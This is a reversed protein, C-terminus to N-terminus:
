KCISFGQKNAWKKTLEWAEKPSVNKKILKGKTGDANILHLDGRVNQISPNNYHKELSRLWADNSMGANQIQSAKVLPKTDGGIGNYGHMASHETGTFQMDGSGCSDKRTTDNFILCELYKLM